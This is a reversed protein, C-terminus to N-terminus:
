AAPRPLVSFGPTPPEIGDRGENNKLANVAQETERLTKGLRARHSDGGPLCRPGHNLNRSLGAKTQTRWARQPSRAM